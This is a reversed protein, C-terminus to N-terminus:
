QILGITCLYLLLKMRGGLWPLGSCDNQCLNEFSQSSPSRNHHLLESETPQKRKEVAKCLSEFTTTRDTLNPSGKRRSTNFPLHQLSLLSNFRCLRKPNKWVEWSSTIQLKINIDVTVGVEPASIVTYERQWYYYCTLLSDSLILAIRHCSLFATCAKVEAAKM